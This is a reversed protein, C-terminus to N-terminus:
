KTSPFRAVSGILPRQTFLGLIVFHSNIPTIYPTALFIKILMKGGVGFFLVNVM